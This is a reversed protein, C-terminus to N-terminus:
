IRFLNKANATTIQAMEVVSINKLEAIKEAVYRVYGSENRKGRYPEPTLYPCDTEILLRDLPVAEAVEKPKKANKFTVPGGLSIYFNMKICQEAMEPSGSFCHMIGGVEEAKEERLIDMIDQHAERDHIIIPLKLKKALRIQKRFVDHQVDKPSTDWYYDLGIEGIGVVKKEEAALKEIWVLDDDTMTIADQPHWGIATYIFDYQRALELSSEITERNYGINCIYSVGNEQARAIVEERDENFKEDNLHAHTDFLM